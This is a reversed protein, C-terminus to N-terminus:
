FSPRFFPAVFLHEEFSLRASCFFESHHIGEKQFCFIVCGENCIAKLESTKIGTIDFTCAFVLIKIRQDADCAFM